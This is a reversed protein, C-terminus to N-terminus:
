SVGSFSDLGVQCGTGETHVQKANFHVEFKEVWRGGTCCLGRLAYGALLLCCCQFLDFLM